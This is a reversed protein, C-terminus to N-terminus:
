WGRKHKLANLIRLHEEEDKLIEKFKSVAISDGQKTSREIELKYTNIAMEESEIEIQLNDPDADMVNSYPSYKENTPPIDGMSNTEDDAKEIDEDTINTFMNTTYSIEHLEAMAIKQSIIASDFVDKIATVKKGVLDAVESDSPTKIPNFKVGLDDPVEGFESMFMVPLLKNMKPKLVSEQQQGIMDYYMNEDSEGTANMGAPARGFLKTVPMDCAGAVDLMFSEYIDNIGSFTYNLSSIEDKNGILMMASSNRLRNQATKVNYFDQQTQEDTMALMQDLGDVKNVLVNAQFILAAINWSTNDRKVLEDYVHELESAGWHMETQDEWFPLKRGTFRLVRSHHVQQKIQGNIDKIEYFEPLGFEPDSIDTILEIGPYIGSWRDLVMLGKFSNPMIDDLNLPEDLIDEHGEILMIAGAGGYLRGWTLGEVIKEKILTRQELKDFRDQVEPTLEASISFWNKCMDEPIANIIKKAIWSNRYLSNMLNYDRTIRQIPYSTGELLSNSGMGLRALPNQFSDQAQKRPPNSTTGSDRNNQKNKYRKNKSM